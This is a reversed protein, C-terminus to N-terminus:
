EHEEGEQELEGMKQALATLENKYKTYRAQVDAPAPQANKPPAKSSMTPTRYTNRYISTHASHIVTRIPRGYTYPCTITTAIHVGQSVNKLKSEAHVSIVWTDLQLM